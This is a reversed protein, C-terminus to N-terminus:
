NPSYVDKDDHDIVHFNLTALRWSQADYMPNGTIAPVDRYCGSLESLLFKQRCEKCQDVKYTLARFKLYIEKWCLRQKERVFKVFEKLDIPESEKVRPASSKPSGLDKQKQQLHYAEEKFVIDHNYFISGNM